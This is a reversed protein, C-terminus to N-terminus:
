SVFSCTATVGASATAGRLKALERRAWDVHKTTQFKLDDGSRQVESEIDGADDVFITNDISSAASAAATSAHTGTGSRTKKDKAACLASTPSYARCRAVVRRTSTACWSLSGRSDWTPARLSKLTVVRSIMAPLTQVTSLLSTAPEIINQETVTNFTLM